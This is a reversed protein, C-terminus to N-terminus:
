KALEEEIIQRFTEFPAAGELSRGNILFTPTGQIGRGLADNLITELRTRYRGERLCAELAAGDLGLKPAAQRVLVDMLDTGGTWSSANEYEWDHMEWFKGQEGACYLAEAATRQFIDDL